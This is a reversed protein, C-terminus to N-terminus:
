GSDRRRESGLNPECLACVARREGPGLRWGDDRM